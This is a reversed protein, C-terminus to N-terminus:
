VEKRNLLKLILRLLKFYIAHVTGEFNTEVHVGRGDLSQFLYERKYIIQIKDDLVWVCSFYCYNM